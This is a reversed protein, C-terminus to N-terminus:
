NHHVGDIEIVVRGIKWFFDAIYRGLVVQCDFDRRGLRTKRLADRFVKEAETPYKRMRAAFTQRSM